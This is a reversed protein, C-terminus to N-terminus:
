IKEKNNISTLATDDTIMERLIEFSRALPVLFQFVQDEVVLYEHFSDIIQFLYFM